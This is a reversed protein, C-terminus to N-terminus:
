QHIKNKCISAFYRLFKKTFIQRPQSKILRLLYYFPRGNKQSNHSGIQNYKFQLILASIQRHNLQWAKRKQIVIEMCLKLSEDFRSLNTNNDHQRYYTSIWEVFHVPYQRVIQFLFLWDESGSLNRDESFGGVDQFVDKRIFTCGLPLLPESFIVEDLINKACLRGPKIRGLSGDAKLIQLQCFFVSAHCNMQIHDSLIQITGPTMLDDADFFLLFDPKVNALAYRAGTNRAFGRESNIIKLYHIKKSVVYESLLQETQDTSGDDVIIVQCELLEVPSNSFISEIAKKVFIMRNYTPIVIALNKTSLAM